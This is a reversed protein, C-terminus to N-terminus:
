WEPQVPQLSLSLFLTIQVFQQIQTKIDVGGECVSLLKEEPM